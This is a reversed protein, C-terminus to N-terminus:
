FKFTLNTYFYRGPENMLMVDPTGGVTILTLDVYSNNVAYTQNFLNNVGVTLDTHKNIQHKVKANMVAWAKLVQEGNDSDIDSWKDSAQVELTATSKNMYEYNLAINGRLPAMDSLDDDSQGALAEDKKGRKYSAGLDVSIEDTAFYSASLEAGYVKADINQFANVAVGREIYIYDELMSYFAKVKFNFLESIKEYGFDIERNKTQKLNPTGVIDGNSNVFYLERADPIRSATGIGAFIKNESDLSYSTFINASLASYDNSQLTSDEDIHTSDYRAGAKINLSGFNKELTTFLAKNTTDANNISKRGGAILAGDRYYIGDWNRKSADLGILLEYENLVFSNKLKVGQMTTTLWNTMTPNAGFSSMRYDTGMPHDVDSYYYQINLNKYIEGINDIDYEISYINSDDYLADMKSNGYLVDDSRNGTYSLRLEQDDATTVYIKSMISKKSYAEMDHYQPQYKNGAAAPNLLAYNDIQQAITNGDGDEYQDSSEHSATILARVKENGGSITAGIKKYGWSGLGFNVEGHLDKTPKKTTIKLGGSMTGFTEVDYPGEIIEIEDIQSALIHSVPPDMRNPCAGCVKTGDVEVSINDRKQGRIYIDNAIASRRNMDISPVSSSLAQALDASTQANQSVETITTSEVSIKPLEIENASLVSVAVISLPIIKRYM